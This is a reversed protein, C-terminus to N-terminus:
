RLTESSVIQCDFGRRTTSYRNPLVKGAFERALDDTAGYSDSVFRQIARRFAREARIRHGRGIYTRVHTMGDLVVVVSSSKM